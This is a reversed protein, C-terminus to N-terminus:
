GTYWSHCLGGLARSPSSPPPPSPVWGHGQAHSAPSTSSLQVGYVGTIILINNLAMELTYSTAGERNLTLESDGWLHIGIVQQGSLGLTQAGAQKRWNPKTSHALLASSLWV